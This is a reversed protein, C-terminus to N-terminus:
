IQFVLHDPAVTGHDGNPKNATFQTFALIVRAVLDVRLRGDDLCRCRHRSYDGLLGDNRRRADLQSAVAADVGGRRGAGEVRHVDDVPDGLSVESVRVVVAILEDPLKWRRIRRM